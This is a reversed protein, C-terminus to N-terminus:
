EGIFVSSAIAPRKFFRHYNIKRLNRIPLRAGCCRDIRHALAASVRARKDGHSQFVTDSRIALVLV